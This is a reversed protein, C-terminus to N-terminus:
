PRILSPHFGKGLALMEPDTLNRKVHFLLDIGPFEYAMSPAIGGIEDIDERLNERATGKGGYQFRVEGFKGIQDSAYRAILGVVEDVVDMQEAAVSASPFDEPNQRRYVSMSIFTDNRRRVHINM